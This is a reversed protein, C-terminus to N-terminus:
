VTAANAKERCYADSSELKPVVFSLHHACHLCHFREWQEASLRGLLPHEDFAGAHEKFRAITARLCETKKALDLGSHPLYIEQVRVGSPIWELWFSLRLAVPGFLRRMPWSFKEPVGQMPLRISMELHNFIQALSWQGLTKHGALLHEVDPLVDDISSFRLNRRRTTVLRSVQVFLRTVVPL